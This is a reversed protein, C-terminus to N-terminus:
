RELYDEYYFDALTEWTRGILEGNLTVYAQAEDGYTKSEWLELKGETVQMEDIRYCKTQIARYQVNMDKVMGTKPDKGKSYRYLVM